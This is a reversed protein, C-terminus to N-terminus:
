GLYHEAHTQLVKERNMTKSKIIINKNFKVGIEEQNLITFHSLHQQVPWTLYDKDEEVM